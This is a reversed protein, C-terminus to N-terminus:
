RMASPRLRGSLRLGARFNRALLTMQVLGVLLEIAQVTYFPTDFEGAGAKVALYIACPVMVLLGNAAILRMRQTKEELLRGQRGRGLAFGSGGTAAMALVLCAIGYKAIAQKVATVAQADLFLESVLTATWFASVMLMALTGAAAHMATKNM